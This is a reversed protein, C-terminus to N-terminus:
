RLLEAFVQLTFKIHKGKPNSFRLTVNLKGGPALDSNVILIPNGSSDVGTQNVLTIKPNLGKLVLTLPGVFTQHSKNKLTLKQHAKKGGLVTGRTVKVLSTVETLLDNDVITLVASSPTGLNAGGTPSVLTLNLTRNGPVLENDLIPISVTKPTTDGDAFAVTAITPTYDQNAMATSGAPTTAVEVTVLGSAGGTRTVTVVAVGGTENATFRPASFELTGPGVLTNQIGTFTVPQVGAANITGAGTGNPTVAGSGEYDLTNGSGAASFNFAAGANPVVKFLNNGGKDNVNLISNPDANVVNVTDHGSGANLTATANFITNGLTFSNGGTGGDVTLAPVPPTGVNGLASADYNIAAPALGVITAANLIVTRGTPDASDDVVLTSLANANSISVPATIGQVSGANGITIAPHADQNTSTTKVSTPVATSAITVSDALDGTDISISTLLAAPVTVTNTNAGQVSGMQNGSVSITNATDTLEYMGTAQNLDLTLFNQELSNATFMAVGGSVDLNGPNLRTELREVGPRVRRAKRSSNNLPKKM